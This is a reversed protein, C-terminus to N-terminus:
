RSLEKVKCLVEDISWQDNAHKGYQVAVLKGQANVLFDAPLGFSTENDRPLQVGFQLAGRLAFLWVAPNFVALLSKDVGFQQYLHKRPDAILHFPSNPLDALIREQTSNFVVVEQIGASELEPQRTIFSHLHLNCVTCGSYRRFQIHTWRNSHPVDVPNNHVDRWQQPQLPAGTQLKSM